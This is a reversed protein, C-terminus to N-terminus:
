VLWCSNVKLMLNEVKMILKKQRQAKCQIEQLKKEVYHTQKQIKM